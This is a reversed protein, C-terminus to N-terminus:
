IQQYYRMFQSLVIANPKGAIKVMISPYVSEVSLRVDGKNTKAVTWVGPWPTLARFLDILYTSTHNTPNKQLRFSLLQNITDKPLIPQNNILKQLTQWEIYGTDRTFKRTYTNDQSNPNTSLLTSKGSLWNILLSSGLSFLRTLLTPTTDEPLINDQTQALIKGEDVRSTLHFLTVGTTADGLAITHQAPTSGRYEPLLSPHLCLIGNEGFQNILEPRLIYGFSALVGLTNKGIVPIEPYYSLALNYMKALEEVPNSAFQKTVVSVNSIHIILKKLVIASYQDDGFFIIETM